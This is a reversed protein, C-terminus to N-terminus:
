TSSRSQLAMNAQGNGTQTEWYKKVKKNDPKYFRTYPEANVAEKVTLKQDVIRSFLCGYDIGTLEALQSLSMKRGKYTVQHNSRRHQSLEKVTEWQLNSPYFHGTTDKRCLRHKPTPKEGLNTIVWDRFEDFGQKRPIWDRYLKIGQGGVLPYTPSTPNQTSYRMRSWTTYLPNNSRVDAYYDTKKM